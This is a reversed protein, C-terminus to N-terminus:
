HTLFCSNNVIKPVGQLLLNTLCLNRLGGSCWPIINEYFLIIKEYAFHHGSDVIFLSLRVIQPEFFKLMLPSHMDTKTGLITKRAETITRVLLFLADCM